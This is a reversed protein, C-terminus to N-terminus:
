LSQQAQESLIRVPISPEQTEPQGGKINQEQGESTRSQM